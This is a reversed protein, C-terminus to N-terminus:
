VGNRIESDYGFFHLKGVGLWNQWPVQTSIRMVQIGTGTGKVPTKWGWRRYCQRFPRRASTTNWKPRFLSGVLLAKLSLYDSPLICRWTIYSFVLFRLDQLCLQYYEPKGHRYKNKIKESAFFFWWIFLSYKIIPNEMWQITSSTSRTEVCDRSFPCRAEFLNLM